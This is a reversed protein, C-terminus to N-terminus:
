PVTMRQNMRGCFRLLVASFGLPRDGGQASARTSRRRVSADSLSVLRVDYLRHVGTGKRQTRACALVPRAPGSSAGRIDGAGIVDWVTMLDAMLGAM